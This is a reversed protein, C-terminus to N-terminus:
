FLKLQGKDDVPVVDVIRSKFGYKKRLLFTAQKPSYAKIVVNFVEDRPTIVNGRYSTKM